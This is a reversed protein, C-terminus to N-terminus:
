REEITPETMSVSGIYQLEYKELYSMVPARSATRACLSTRGSSVHRWRMAGGDDVGDEGLGGQGGLPFRLQPCHVRPQEGHAPSQGRREPPQRRQEVREPKDDREPHGVAIRLM